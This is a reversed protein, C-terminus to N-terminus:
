NRVIRVTRMITHGDANLRLTATYVGLVLDSGDIVRTHEGASEQTNDAIVMVLKGLMDRIEISVKGDVPLNYDLTTSERFPNPYNVLSLKNVESLGDLNLANQGIVDMRLAADPLVQAMANALENLPNAALEFRLIEDKVLPGLLRVRVNLMKDAQRLSLPSLSFWGIRLEDGSANYMLPTHAADALTVGTVELKDSPFNMILSIAGVEMTSEASVALDVEDGTKVMKTQDYSLQLSKVSSKLPDLTFSGNYDGTCLALFNQTLAVSGVPVVVQPLLVTTNPVIPNSSIIDSGSGTTWFTWDDRRGNISPTNWPPNGSTIYYRMIRSADASNNRNDTVVDGAYFQVKEIPYANSGTGWYNLAAADVPSVSGPTIEHGPVNTNFVVDWTGPGIDTFSYNGFADTTTTIDAFGAQQLTVGIYRM